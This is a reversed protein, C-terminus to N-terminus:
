HGAEQKLAEKQQWQQMFTRSEPAPLDRWKTWGGALPLRRFRGRGGTLSRLEVAYRRLEAAPVTSVVAQAVDLRIDCVAVLNAEPVKNVINAVHVSGMRGTGIVALNIKRNMM